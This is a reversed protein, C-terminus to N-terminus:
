RERSSDEVRRPGSRTDVHDVSCHMITLTRWAHNPTSVEIRDYSFEFEHSALSVVEESPELVFTPDDRASAARLFAAIKGHLVADSLLEFEAFALHSVEDAAGHSASFVDLDESALPKKLRSAMLSRYSHLVAKAVLERSRTVLM